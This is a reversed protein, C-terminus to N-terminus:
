GTYFTTTTGTTSAAELASAYQWQAPLTVSASVDFTRYDAVRPTLSVKNWTLALMNPTSLRAASYKGLDNGLYDFRVDISSAGTPVNLHFAYLDEADRQWDLRTGHAEIVLAALNPIPGNPAHEGPLWRPYELTLRGLSSPFENALMCSGARRAQRMWQLRCRLFVSGCQGGSTRCRCVLVRGRDFGGAVLAIDVGCQAEHLLM